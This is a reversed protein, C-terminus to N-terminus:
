LPAKEGFTLIPKDEMAKEMFTKFIPLAVNKGTEHNGLTYPIPFGVFVGVVLDPTFGIFWADKYDNTTGTKGAIPRELSLLRRGTGKQIVGEMMQRLQRLAKPKAIPTTKQL